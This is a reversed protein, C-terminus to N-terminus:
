ALCVSGRRVGRTASAASMQPVGQGHLLQLPFWLPHYVQEIIRQVRCLRRDPQGRDLLPAFTRVLARGIKSASLEGASEGLVGRPQCISLSIFCDCLLVCKPTLKWEWIFSSLESFHAWKELGRNREHQKTFWFFPAEVYRCMGMRAKRIRIADQPM